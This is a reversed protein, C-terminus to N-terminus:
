RRRVLRVPVNGVGLTLFATCKSVEEFWEDVSQGAKTLPEVKWDRLVMTLFCVSETIALKRGLCSRPGLGFGAITESENTVDYWRSPRYTEPDDFYCPNRYIGVVDVVVQVGKHLPIPADPVELICDQMAERMIIHASPFMRLAEYFGAHVKNLKPYDDFTPDRDTGVVATIQEALENQVDPHRALCALAGALTHATTEHGSFLMIFVNSILESYDLKLKTDKQAQNAQILACLIDNEPQQGLILEEEKEMIKKHMFERLVAISAKLDKFRYINCATGIVVSVMYVYRTFPLNLIFNPFSLLLINDIYYRMAETYSVRTGQAKLSEIAVDETWKFPFGFGCRGIVYFAFKFTLKQATFVDVLKKDDYGEGTVMEHYLQISEQWVLEYLKQSFTSGVIRRQKRWQDGNAVVVNTGWYRLGNKGSTHTRGFPGKDSSLIQLSANINSTIVAPSGSIFPIISVTDRGFRKYMTNRWRWVLESGPNWRSRPFIAGSMGYPQLPVAFGPISGVAQTM